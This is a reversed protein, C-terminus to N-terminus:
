PNAAEAGAGGHGPGQCVAGASLALELNVSSSHYPLGTICLVIVPLACFLRHQFVQLERELLGLKAELTTPKQVLLGPQRLFVRGVEAAGVGRERLLSAVASCAPESAVLAKFLQASGALQEPGIGLSDRLWGLLEQVAAPDRALFRAAMVPGRDLAAGLLTLQPPRKQRGEKLHPALLLLVAWNAAFTRELSPRLRGQSLLLQAMSAPSLGEAQLAAVMPQAAPKALAPYAPGAASLSALSTCIGALLGTGSSGSGLLSGALLGSGSSSGRLLSGALLRRALLM